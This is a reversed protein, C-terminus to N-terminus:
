FYYPFFITGPQGNLIFDGVRKSKAYHFRKPTHQKNYM